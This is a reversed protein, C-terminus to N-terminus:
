HNNLKLAAAVAGLDQQALRQVPSPPRQWVSAVAGTGPISPFSEGFLPINKSKQVLLQLGYARHHM